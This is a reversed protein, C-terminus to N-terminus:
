SMGPIAELVARPADYVDNYRGLYCPDHYTIAQEVKNAM